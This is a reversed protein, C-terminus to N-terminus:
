SPGPQSGPGDLYPHSLADNATPRKTPDVVLLFHLFSILEPSMRQGDLNELEHRLSGVRFVPLQRKTDSDKYTKSELNKALSFEKEFGSGKKPPGIQRILRQISAICLAEKTSDKVLTDDVSFLAQRSLWQTLKGTLQSRNLPTCVWM